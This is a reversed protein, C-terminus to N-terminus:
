PLGGSRVPERYGDTGDGDETTAETTALAPRAASRETTLGYAQPDETIARMLKMAAWAQLGDEVREDFSWRITTMRRRDPGSTPSGPALRPRGVVSFIGITGYEYLHHYCPDMGISALNVFFVTAFLPDKDIFSRPLLGLRNGLFVLGLAIRRVFGPFRFLLGLEKDVYSPGGFRSQTTHEQMSAVLGEFDGPEPFQQKVVNLPAGHQLRAKVSYAFSQSTRDYVRGGAVFRTMTPHRLLGACVAYVWLHFIDARTDPHADNFERIFKDALHLDIDYEYYVASENRGRMIYPMIRRVTPQKKVLTGDPRKWWLM